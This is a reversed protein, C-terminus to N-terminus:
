NTKNEDVKFAAQVVIARGNVDRGNYGVAKKQDEPSAFEVFGFGKSYGNRRRTIYAKSIKLDKFIEELGKDDVAFALNSVYVMNTSVERNENNRPPRTTRNNNNNNNNRDRSRNRNNDRRRNDNRDRSRNRNDNRDRSHNRDNSRSSYSRDNNNSRRDNDRTNRSTSTKVTVVRENIESQDLARQADNQDQGNNFEVFGYGKSNGNSGTIIRANRPHFEQFIDKLDGDDLELPLNTIFLTYDRRERRRISKVNSDNRDNRDYRDNRDHRDNRDNRRPRNDNRNRDNRRPRSSNNSDNPKDGRYGTSAKVIIDRGDVKSNDLKLAKEQDEKTNFEVFGFGKSMGNRRKAVTAVKPNFEAFIKKLEEDNVNWSLNSIYVATDSSPTRNQTATKFEERLEGNENRRDDNMAIKANLKRSNFEKGNVNEIAAKQDSEKELNVFGFGKSRGNKEKQLM